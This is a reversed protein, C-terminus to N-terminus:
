SNWLKFIEDDSCDNEFYITTETHSGKSYFHYLCKIKCSCQWWLVRKPGMRIDAALILKLLECAKCRWQWNTLSRHESLNSMVFQPRFQHITQLSIRNRAQHVLCFVFFSCHPRKKQKIGRDRLCGRTTLLVLCKTLIMWRVKFKWISVTIKWVLVKAQSLRIDLKRSQEKKIEISFDILYNQLLLTRDGFVCSADRQLFCKLDCKLVYYTCSGKQFSGHIYWSSLSVPMRLKEGTM